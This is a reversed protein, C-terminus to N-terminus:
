LHRQDLYTGGIEYKENNNNNLKMKNLETEINVPSFYFCGCASVCLYEPNVSQTFTERQRIGETQKEINQNRTKIM